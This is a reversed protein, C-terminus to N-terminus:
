LINWAKGHIGHGRGKIPRLQAKLHEADKAPREPSQAKAVAGAQFGQVM